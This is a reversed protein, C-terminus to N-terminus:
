SIARAPANTRAPLCAPRHWGHPLQCGGPPIGERHCGSRDTIRTGSRIGHCRASNDSVGPKRSRLILSYLGMENVIVFQQDGGPTALYAFGKEDDDLDRSIHDPKLGLVATVDKAVFWPEGDVVVVRVEANVIM